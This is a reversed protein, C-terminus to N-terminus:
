RGERGFTMYLIGALLILCLWLPSKSPSFDIGGLDRKRQKEIMQNIRNEKIEELLDHLEQIMANHLKRSPFLYLMQLRTIIPKLRWNDGKELLLLVKHYDGMADVQQEPITHSLIAAAQDLLKENHDKTHDVKM